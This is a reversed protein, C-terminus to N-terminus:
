TWRQSTSTSGSVPFTPLDHQHTLRTLRGDPRVLALAYFIEGPGCPGWPANGVTSPRASRAYVYSDRWHYSGQYVGRVATPKRMSFWGGAPCSSVWRCGPGSRPRPHPRLAKAAFVLSRADPSGFRLRLRVVLLHLRM